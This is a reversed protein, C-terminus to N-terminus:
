GAFSSRARIGWRDKKTTAIWISEYSGIASGDARYRTFHVEIHVKDPGAQLVRRQDIESRAWGDARARREFETFSLDEPREFITVKAGAFRYHPFHFVARMAESDHANLADIYQDMLALASEEPTPV